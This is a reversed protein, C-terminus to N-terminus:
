VWCVMLGVVISCPARETHFPLYAEANAYVFVLQEGLDECQGTLMERIIKQRGKQRLSRPCRSECVLSRSDTRVVRYVTQRDDAWLGALTGRRDLCM